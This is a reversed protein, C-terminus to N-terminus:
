LANSGPSARRSARFSAKNDDFISALVRRIGSTRHLLDYTYQRTFSDIGRRRYEPLTYLAYIFTEGPQPVVNRGLEPILEWATTVWRYNALRGNSADIGVFWRDGRAFRQFPLQGRLSIRGRDCQQCRDIQVEPQM